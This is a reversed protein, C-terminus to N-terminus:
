RIAGTSTATSPAAGAGAPAAGAAPQAAAAPGQPTAGGTPGEAPSVLYSTAGVEAKINPFGTQDPELTLSDVTLLRGSVAINQNRVKVFRELQSFFESLRFFGGTFTFSFPMTPFGAAGVTVGPPLAPAAAAGPAGAAAPAAVPAAATGTGVKIARFDVRSRTAASDLQVMLSRVDDDAPVAKGLRVISAYSTAYSEKAQRFDALDSQAAKLEQKATDVSAKLKSAEERKPALVGFYFGASAVVAAVVAILIHNTRIM